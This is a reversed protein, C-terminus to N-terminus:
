FLRVGQCVADNQDRSGDMVSTTSELPPRRVM